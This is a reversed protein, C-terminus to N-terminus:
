EPSDPLDLLFAAHEHDEVELDVLTRIEEFDANAWTEMWDNYQSGADSEQWNENREDYYDQMKQAIGDRFDGVNKLTNNYQQIKENLAAVKENVEALAADIAAAETTLNTNFENIDSKNSESLSKM